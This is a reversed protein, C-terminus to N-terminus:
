QLQSALSLKIGLLPLVNNRYKQAVGRDFYVMAFHVFQFFPSGEQIIICLCLCLSLLLMEEKFIGMTAATAGALSM